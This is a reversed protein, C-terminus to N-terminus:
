TSSSREHVGRVRVRVRDAAAQAPHHRQLGRDAQAQQAGAQEGEGVVLKLHLVELFQLHLGRDRLLDHAVGGLEALGGHYLLHGVVGHAPGTGVHHEPTGVAALHVAIRRGAEVGLAVARAAAAEAELGGGVDGAAADVARHHHVAVVVARHEGADRQRQQGGREATPQSTNRVTL